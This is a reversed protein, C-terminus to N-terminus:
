DESQRKVQIYLNSLSLQGLVHRLRKQVRALGCSVLRWDRKVSSLHDGRLAVGQSARSMVPWPATNAAAYWLGGLTEEDLGRDAIAQGLLFLRHMNLMTVTLM